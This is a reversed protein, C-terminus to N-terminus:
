QKGIKKKAATDYWINYDRFDEFEKLPPTLSGGHRKSVKNHWWMLKFPLFIGAKRFWLPTKLLLEVWFEGYCKTTRIKARSTQQAKLNLNSPGSSLSTTDRHLAPTQSVLSALFLSKVTLPFVLAVICFCHEHLRNHMNCTFRSPCQKQEKTKRKQTTSSHDFHANKYLTIYYYILASTGDLNYVHAKEHM